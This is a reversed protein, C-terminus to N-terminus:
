LVRAQLEGLLAASKVDPSPQSMARRGAPISRHSHPSSTRLSQFSHVTPTKLPIAGKADHTRGERESSSCRSPGVSPPPGRRRRASELPKSAKAPTERQPRTRAASLGSRDCPGTTRMSRDITRDISRDIRCFSGGGWHSMRPRQPRDISSSEGCADDWRKDSAGCVCLGVPAAPHLVLAGRRRQRRRHAAAPAPRLERHTRLPSPESRDSPFPSRTHTLM